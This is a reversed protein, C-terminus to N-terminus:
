SSTTPVGCCARPCGPPAAPTSCMCTTPPRNSRHRSRHAPRRRDIRLRRRRAGPRQGLRRRDPDAGAPKPLKPLVDAVRPAFTAHYLLATAGSDALLYQLENKVYRYNVNFPAVRARWAGLMAEVYEPGNYAYIGLLDQGVEHGALESRETKCGLGRSHLYAALRNSREVIQAYTYRRDGQIIFDRDGIVAAVADAAAPVTFQTAPDTAASTLLSDSMSGRLAPAAAAQDDPRESRITRHRRRRDDDRHPVGEARRTQRDARALGPARRHPDGEQYDVHLYATRSIPRDAASVIMGFHWDFFLPIVGGHVANNGGVHFRSFHGHMTVGDPGYDTLTWPPVLPHGLGPLHPARGAPAVGQPARHVELQECLDEIRKAGDTWLAGDPATSVAIDQLRRMAAMFRAMEPPADIPEIPPFGRTEHDTDTM